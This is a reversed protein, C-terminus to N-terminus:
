IFFPTSRPGRQPGGFPMMYVVLGGLGPYQRCGTGGRGRGIGMDGLSVRMGWRVGSCTNHGSNKLDEEPLFDQKRTEITATPSSGKATLRLNKNKRRRNTGRGGNSGEGKLDPLFPIPPLFSSLFSMGRWGTNTKKRRKKKNKKVPNLFYKVKKSSSFM